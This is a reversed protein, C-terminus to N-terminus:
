SGLALAYLYLQAICFAFLGLCSASTGCNVDFCSCNVPVYQATRCVSIVQYGSGPDPGQAGGAGM